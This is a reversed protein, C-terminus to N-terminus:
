FFDQTYLASHAPVTDEQFACGGAYYEFIFRLVFNELMSEYKESDLNEQVVMDPTKSRWSIGGWVMVGSGAGAENRSYSEPYGATEGSVPQGTPIM